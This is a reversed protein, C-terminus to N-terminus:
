PQKPQDPKPQPPSGPPLGLDLNPPKRGLKENMGTIAKNARQAERRAEEEREIRAREQARLEEQSPGCGALTGM